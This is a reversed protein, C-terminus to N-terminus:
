LLATDASRHRLYWPGCQEVLLRTAEVEAGYKAEVAEVVGRWGRVDTAQMLLSRVGEDRKTWQHLLKFLHNRVYEPPPPHEEALALYEHAFDCQSAVRGTDRNVRRAFLGPNELIAEGSMVGDAQTAAFCWQVDSCTGVGGNSIVPIRLAAKM